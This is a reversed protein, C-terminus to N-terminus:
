TNVTIADRAVLQFQDAMLQASPSSQERAIAMLATQFKEIKDAAAELEMAFTLPFDTAWPEVGTSRLERARARLGRAIM